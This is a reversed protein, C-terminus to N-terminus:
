ANNKASGSEQLYVWHKYLLFNWGVALVVNIFRVLLYDNAAGLIHVIWVETFFWMWVTAFFYNFFALSFFRIMQTHSFGRSQFSWYKNLFFVYLLVFPQSILVAVYHPWDFFREILYLSGLDLVFSTVGIVFYKSFEHRASWLHLIFKKIM